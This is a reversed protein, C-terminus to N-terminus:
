RNIIFLSQIDTYSGRVDAPAPPPQRSDALPTCYPSPLSAHGATMIIARKGDLVWWCHM